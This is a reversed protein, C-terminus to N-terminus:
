LGDIISPPGAKELIRTLEEVTDPDGIIHQPRIILSWDGDSTKRTGAKPPSNPPLRLRVATELTKEMLQPTNSEVFSISLMDPNKLTHAKVGAYKRIGEDLLISPMAVRNYNIVKAAYSGGSQPAPLGSTDLVTLYDVDSPIREGRTLSGFLIVAKLCATDKSYQTVDMVDSVASVVGDFIGRIRNKGSQGLKKLGPMADLPDPCSLVGEERIVPV